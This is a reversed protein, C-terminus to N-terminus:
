LPNLYKVLFNITYDTHMILTLVNILFVIASSVKIGLIVQHHLPLFEVAGLQFASTTQSGRKYIRPVHFKVVYLKNYNFLIFIPNFFYM